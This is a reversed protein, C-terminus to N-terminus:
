RSKFSNVIAESSIITSGVVFGFGGSSSPVHVMAQFFLACRGEVM